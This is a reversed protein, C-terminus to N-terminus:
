IPNGFPKLDHEALAERVAEGALANVADKGSDECYIRRVMEMPAKGKRFGKITVGKRVKVLQRDLEEQYKDWPVEINLKREVEGTVELTTKM